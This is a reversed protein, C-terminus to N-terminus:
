LRLYSLVEDDALLAALVTYNVGCNDRGTPCKEWLGLRYWLMHVHVRLHAIPATNSDSAPNVISASIEFRNM